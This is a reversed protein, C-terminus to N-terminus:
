INKMSEIMERHLQAKLDDTLGNAFANARQLPSDNGQSSGVSALPRPKNANKIARDKDVDTQSNLSIGMQKIITYASAGKTYLDPNNYITQALEPYTLKLMELNDKNVIVDFDPYRSKLQLEASSAVSQEQYQKLQDELRQIKKDYRSLHRKEILADPALNDDQEISESQPKAQHQYAALQRAMEQKEAELRSAQERLAKFNRQQPTEEVPAAQAVQPDVAPTDSAEPQVQPVVDQGVDQFNEENQTIQENDFM